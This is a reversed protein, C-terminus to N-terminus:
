QQDNHPSIVIGRSDVVSREDPRPQAVKRDLWDQLVRTSQAHRYVFNLLSTRTVQRRAPVTTAVGLARIRMFDTVCTVWVSPSQGSRLGRMQASPAAPLAWFPQMHTCGTYMCAYPCRHLHQRSIRCSQKVNEATPPNQWGLKSDSQRTRHVEARNPGPKNSM